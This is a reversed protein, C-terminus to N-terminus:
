CREELWKLMKGSTAKLRMFGRENLGAWNQLFERFQPADMFYLTAEDEIATAYIFQTSHVREFFIDMSEEFTDALKMNVVTARSSKVSANIEEIDSGKDYPTNADKRCEYGLVSKAVVEMFEGNNMWHVGDLTFPAGKHNPDFTFGVNIKATVKKMM